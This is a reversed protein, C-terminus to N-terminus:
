FPGDGVSSFADLKSPVSVLTENATEYGAGVSCVPDYAQLTSYTDGGDSTRSCVYCSWDTPLGFRECPRPRWGEVTDLRCESTSADHAPRTPLAARQLRQCFPGEVRGRVRWYRYGGQLMSFDRGECTEPSLAAWRECDSPYREPTGLSVHVLLLALPLLLWSGVAAGRFLSRRWGPECWPLFSPRRMLWIAAAVVGLGLALDAAWTYWRGLLANPFLMGLAHVAFWLQPGVLVLALLIPKWRAHQRFSSERGTTEETTM